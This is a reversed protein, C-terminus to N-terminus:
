ISEQPTPRVMERPSRATIRHHATAVHSVTPSSAENNRVSIDSESTLRLEGIRRTSLKSQAVLMMTSTRLPQEERIRSKRVSGGLHGAYVVSKTAISVRKDRTGMVPAADSTRWARSYLIDQTSKCKNLLIELFRVSMRQLTAMQASSSM